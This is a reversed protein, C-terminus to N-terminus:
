SGGGSSRRRNVPVRRAGPAEQTIPVRIQLIGDDYTAEVDSESAGAPLPLRRTFSGYRFESRYSGKDDDSVEHSEKREARICLVGDDITVEVDEDPDIGPMEARVVLTGDERFEEIRMGDRDLWEEPLDLGRFWDPAARTFWESWAPRVGRHEQKALEAM